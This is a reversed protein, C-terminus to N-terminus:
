RSPIINKMTEFAPIGGCAFGDRDKHPNFIPKSTVREFMKNCMPCRFIYVVTSAPKKPKPFPTVKNRM